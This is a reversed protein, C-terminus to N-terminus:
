TLLDGSAGRGRRDAAALHSVVSNGPFISVAEAGLRLDRAVM